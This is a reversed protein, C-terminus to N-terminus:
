PPINFLIINGHCNIDIFFEDTAGIRDRKVHYLGALIFHHLYIQLFRHLNFLYFVNIIFVPGKRKFSFAIHIPYIKTLGIKFTSWILFWLYDNYMIFTIGALGYTRWPITTPYPCM